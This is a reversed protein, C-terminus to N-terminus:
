PARAPLTWRRLARADGRVTMGKEDRVAYACLGGSRIDDNRTEIVASEALMKNILPPEAPRRPAHKAEADVLHGGDLCERL